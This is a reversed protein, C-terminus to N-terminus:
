EDVAGTSPGADTAKQADEGIQPADIHVDMAENGEEDVEVDDVDESDDDDSDGGKLQKEKWVRAMELLKINQAKKEDDPFVFDIYEQWGAASGDEAMIQKRMKVKRPMRKELEAIKEADGTSRELVMWREFLLAKDETSLSTGEESSTHALARKFIARFREGSEAESL